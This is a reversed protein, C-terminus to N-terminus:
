TEDNNSINYMEKKIRINEDRLKDREQSIIFLSAELDRIKMKYREDYLSEKSLDSQDNEANLQNEAKLKEIEDKLEKNEKQSVELANYSLNLSTKMKNYNVELEKYSFNDRNSNNLLNELSEKLENIEKQIDVNNTITTFNDVKEKLTSNEAELKHIKENLNEGEQLKKTLIKITEERKDILNNFKKFIIVQEDPNTNELKTRLDRNENELKTIQENAKSISTKMETKAENVLQILRELKLNDKEFVAPSFANNMSPNQQISPTALKPVELFSSKVTSVNLNSISSKTLSPTKTLGDEPTKYGPSSNYNDVPTRVLDLDMKANLENGAKIDDITYIENEDEDDDEDDDDDDEEDGGEERGDGNTSDKGYKNSM